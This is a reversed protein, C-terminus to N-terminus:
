AVQRLLAAVAGACGLLIVAALARSGADDRSAPQPTLSSVDGVLM